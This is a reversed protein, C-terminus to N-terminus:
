WVQITVWGSDPDNGPTDLGAQLQWEHSIMHGQFSPGINQPLQIQAQWQYNQGEAMQFAPAVQVKHEFSTYNGRVTETTSHGGDFDRDKVQAREVARILLYVNAVASNAKGQATIQVWAVQGRQAGQCQLQVAASGGTVANKLNNFFGM